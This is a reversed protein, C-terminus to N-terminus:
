RPFVPCELSESALLRCSCQWFKGHVQLVRMAKKRTHARNATVSQPFNPLSSCLVNPPQFIFSRTREPASMAASVRNPAALAPACVVSVGVGAGVGSAVGGSAMVGAGVVAIGSTMLPAVRLLSRTKM